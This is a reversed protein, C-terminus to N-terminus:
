AAYATAARIQAALASATSENQGPSEHSSFERGQGLTDDLVSAAKPEGGGAMSMSPSAGEIGEIPKIASELGSGVAPGGPGAEGGAMAQLKDPTAVMEQAPMPIGQEDLLKAVMNKLQMLEVNVDIKPKIAADGAGGGAGGSNAIAQEVIAKVEDATVGGAAEAPAPAAAAPDAGMAPMPPMAGAMPDGGGAAAMPDGGAMAMPDAAGAGAGGMVMAPDTFAGKELGRTVNARALKLLEPNLGM